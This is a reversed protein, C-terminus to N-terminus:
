LCWEWESIINMAIKICEKWAFQISKVELELIRKWLETYGQQQNFNLIRFENCSRMKTKLQKFFIEVHALMPSYASIFDVNFYLQHFRNITEKSLHIPANDLSLSVNHNKLDSRKDIAFWLISLYKQFIISNVTWHVIMWLFQGDSCIGAILSWTGYYKTNIIQNGIGKPLWSYNQKLSRSFVLSM